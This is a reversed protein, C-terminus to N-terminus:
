KDRAISFKLSARRDTALCVKTPNNTEASLAFFFGAYACFAMGLMKYGVSSSLLFGIGLPVFPITSVYALKRGRDKLRWLDLGATFSIWSLTLFCATVITLWFCLWVIAEPGDALSPAENKEYLGFFFAGLLVVFLPSVAFAVLSLITVGIPRSRSHISM